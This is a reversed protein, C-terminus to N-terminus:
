KRIVRKPSGPVKSQAAEQAKKQDNVAEQTKKLYFKRLWIPM